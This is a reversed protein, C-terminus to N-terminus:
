RTPSHCIAFGRFLTHNVVFRSYISVACNLCKTLIGGSDGLKVLTADPSTEAIWTWRTSVAGDPVVLAIAAGDPGSLQRELVAPCCSRLAGSVTVLQRTLLDVTVNSEHGM